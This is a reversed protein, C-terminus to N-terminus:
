DDGSAFGFLNMLHVFLSYISTYLDLTVLVYNDEGGNVVESTRWLILGSMLLVVAASIALSLAPIALFINAVMALLAVIIGTVVFGRLFSFDRRSTIAVASMLGFVIATTALANVVVTEGGPVRTLYMGVFPGLFWGTAATYVLMAPLSAPTRSIKAIILPGGIFVALMMIWHVPAANSALAFWATLAAVALSMGLLIYANRLVKNTELTRSPLAITRVTQNM